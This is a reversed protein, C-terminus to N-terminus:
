VRWRSVASAIPKKQDGKKLTHHVRIINQQSNETAMQELYIDEGPFAESIYQIDMETCTAQEPIEKMPHGMMWEIYRVNNVHNNMDLDSTSVRHIFLPTGSDIPKIPSKDIELVHNNPQIGMEMVAKPMRVPRHTKINLVMWQSLAAGLLQGDEDLLEYDRFARLGDGSSPWTKVQINQWREPFQEIRVHMKYLVWTLGQEQLQSIDFHLQDAHIGAAEQFYNCIAPMSVRGNAKVEYSRVQFPLTLERNPNSSHPEKESM